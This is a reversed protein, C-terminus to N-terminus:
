CIKKLIVFSIHVMFLNFYMVGRGIANQKNPFLLVYCPNYFYLIDSIERVKRRCDVMNETMTNGFTSMSQTIHKVQTCITEYIYTLFLATNTTLRFGSSGCLRALEKQLM